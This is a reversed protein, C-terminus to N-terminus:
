RAGPAVVVDGDPEIGADRVADDDSFVRVALTFSTLATDLGTAAQYYGGGALVAAGDRGVEPSIEPAAWRRGRVALGDGDDPTGNFDYALLPALAQQTM